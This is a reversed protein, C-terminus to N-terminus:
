SEQEEFDLTSVGRRGHHRLRVQPEGDREHVEIGAIGLDAARLLDAIRARAAPESLRNQTYAWRKPLDPGPALLWLNEIFWGHVPRLQPHNFQAAVTLFLANPRTAEILHQRNGRLWDSPFRYLEASDAAREFWVQKRGRPYAHLWETEVRDDSVEFGYVYRVGKIVFDIELLSAEDRADPDLAFAPRPVGSEASWRTVSDAVALLMWRMAALVNTKGSANAGYIVVVPLAALDKGAVRVGVSRAHEGARGVLLSLETEDRFSLVNATRFRLLVPAVEWRRKGRIMRSMECLIRGSLWNICCPEQRIVGTA